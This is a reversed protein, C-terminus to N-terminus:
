EGPRYLKELAKLLFHEAEAGQVSLRFWGPLGMNETDRVRIGLARLRQGTTSPGQLLLWNAPSERVTFGRERLKGALAARERRLQAATQRMWSRHEEMAWARLLAVGDTGVTWSPALDRLRHSLGSDATLLFGARIGTVGLSKNPSHLGDAVAPLDPMVECFPAYALDLILRTGRRESQRAAEPLLAPDPFRGDPSNPLCLFATGREPMRALFESEDRARRTERGLASAARQYEGFTPPLTIVPGPQALVIRFILESAGAGVVIRDADHGTAAALEDRVLAYSPDPYRDPSASALLRRLAASPGLRNANSSFDFRPEPGCDPGGHLPPPTNNDSRM